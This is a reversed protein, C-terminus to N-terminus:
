TRQSYKPVHRVFEPCSYIEQVNVRPLEGCVGRFHWDSTTEKRLSLCAQKARKLCHFNGFKTGAGLPYVGFTCCACVPLDMGKPLMLSIAELARDFYGAESSGAAGVGIDPFAKDGALLTLHLGEQRSSTEDSLINRCNLHVQLVWPLNKQEFVLPLPIECELTFNQLLTKDWDFVARKQANEDALQDGEELEWEEFDGSYFTMGRLTMSLTTGDNHVSTVTEGRADRFRAPYVMNIPPYDDDKPQM